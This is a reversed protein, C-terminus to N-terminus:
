KSKRRFQSPSKGFHRSFRDSFSSLSGYGVSDAIRQINLDSQELLRWSEQMRLETLYHHPTMGIQKRFLENLQRISLHSVTALEAAAIKKHFNDDIFQKAASVRRDLNLVDGHREQMLQILLLLMQHQTHSSGTGNVLQSRLFQIYHLLASDLEVFFPLRELAPAHVEPVDAVLFRNEESASYGHDSGSPIIAARNREVDGETKDVSLSLKGLLPLVLQHHGHSHQKGENGYSRLHLSVDSTAM